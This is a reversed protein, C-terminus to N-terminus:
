FNVRLTSGSQRKEVAIQTQIRNKMEEVHSILGITRGQKRLGDITVMVQELTEADLTGFGEDIFLTDIEVGGNNEQVIEALGLALALSAMFTEGGSLSATRREAGQWRDFVRVGLGLGTRENGEKDESHNLTFRGGSMQELHQSAARVVAQFEGALVFNVLDIRRTNDTSSANAVQALFSYLENRKVAKANRAHQKEFRQLVDRVQSTGSERLTHRSLLLDRSEELSGISGALADLEDESPKNQGEAISRSIATMADRKLASTVKTYWQEYATIGKELNKQESEPLCAAKLANASEFSSNNLARQAQAASKEAQQQAQVAREAAIETARVTSQYRELAEIRETFGLAARAPELSACLEAERATAAQAQAHAVAQSEAATARQASVDHLQRTLATFREKAKQYADSKEEAAALIKETQELEQAAQQPPTFQAAELQELVTRAATHRASAEKESAAAQEELRRANDIDKQEVLVTSLSNLTAPHPHEVSGCVMCEEGPQLNKALTLASQALRLSTLETVKKRAGTARSHAARYVEEAEHVQSRARVIKQAHGQSEKLTRRAATAGATAESLAQDVGNYEELKQEADEQEHTIREMQVTFTDFTKQAATFATQARQAAAHAATLMREDKHHGRLEALVQGIRRTLKEYDVGSLHKHVAGQLTDNKEAAGCKEPADYLEYLPTELHEGGTGLDEQQQRSLHLLEGHCKVLADNAQQAAASDTDACQVLAYVPAAARAAELAARNARHTAGQEKLLESERSLKEYEDWDKCLGRLTNLDNRQRRISREIEARRADEIEGVQQIRELSRTLWRTFEAAPLDNPDTIKLTDAEASNAALVAKSATNQPTGHQVPALQETLRTVTRVGEARLGALTDTAAQAQRQAQKAVEDLRTVIREYVEIPFLKKLLEQRERGVTRLFKSFDGQPLLMVKLFQERTLGILSQVYQSSERHRNGVEEWSSPDTPDTGPILRTVQHTAKEPTLGDGRKKPRMWLPTRHIRLRRGQVTLELEVYPATGEAAFLSRLEGESRGSSVTGYIAYCIADLVTTKGAGTPGDLLFIGADNLQEFDISERGPYAMFACFELRHILM